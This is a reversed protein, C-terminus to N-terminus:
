KVMQRLRRFFDSDSSLPGEEMTVGRGSALQSANPTALKEEEKKKKSYFLFLFRAPFPLSPSSMWQLLQYPPAFLNGFGAVDSERAVRAPFSFYGSSTFEHAAVHFFNGTTKNIQLLDFM